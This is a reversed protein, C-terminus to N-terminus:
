LSPNATAVIVPRVEVAGTSAAPCREAWELAADLNEVDILYMGGLQEKTDTYPGDVVQRAGGRKRVITGTHPAKLGAGGNVGKIAVGAERLATLYAWHAARYPSQAITLDRTAFDAETEYVILAYQM